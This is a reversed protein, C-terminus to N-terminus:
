EIMGLYVSQSFLCLLHLLVVKSCIGGIFLLPYVIQACQLKSVIQAEMTSNTLREEMDGSCIMRPNIIFRLTNFTLDHGLPCPVVLFLQFKCTFTQRFCLLCHSFLHLVHQCGQIYDTLANPEGDLRPLWLNKFDVLNVWKLDLLYKM